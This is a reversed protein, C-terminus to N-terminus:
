KQGSLAPAAEPTGTVEPAGTSEPAGISEPVGTSEPAGTSEPTGTPKPAVTPAVTPVSITTPKPAPTKDDKKKKKEYPPIKVVKSFSSRQYSIGRARVTRVRVYYTEKSKLKKLKRNVKTGMAFDVLSYKGKKGKKLYIQYSTVKSKSRLKLVVTKKTRKEVTVTPRGLGRAKIVNGQSFLDCVLIVALLVAGLRYRKRKRSM